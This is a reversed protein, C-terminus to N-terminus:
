HCGRIVARLHYKSNTKYPDPCSLILHFTQNTKLRFTPGAFSHYDTPFLLAAPSPATTGPQEMRDASISIIFMLAPISLFLSSHMDRAKNQRKISVIFSIASRSDPSREEGGRATTSVGQWWGMGGAGFFSSGRSGPSTNMWNLPGVIGTRGRYDISWM